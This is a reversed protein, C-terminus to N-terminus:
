TTKKNYHALRSAASAAIACVIDDLFTTCHIKNKGLDDLKKIIGPKVKDLYGFNTLAISGHVNVISLALIEDVGYLGEDDSIIKCIDKDALNKEVVEDILLATLIANISERKKIVNIVEEKVHEIKLDNIYSKQLDFTIEAIDDIKIGKQELKLITSNFLDM